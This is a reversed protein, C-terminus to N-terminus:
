FLLTFSISLLQLDSTSEILTLPEEILSFPSLVFTFPSQVFTFTREFSPLPFDISLLSM